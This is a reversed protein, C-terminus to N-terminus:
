ARVSGGDRRRWGPAPWPRYRRNCRSTRCGSVADYDRLHDRVPLIRSGVNKSSRSRRPFGPRNMSKVTRSDITAVSLARPRKVLERDAFSRWEYAYYEVPLLENPDKLWEDLMDQYEENAFIRLFVGPCANTPVTTNVAGCLVQLDDDDRLYLEILIEPFSPKEGAKCAAVFQSVLETNFWYPNLEEMVGRGSIRGTLALSIAEMLTSKGADNDGVLINMKSNPCFTFKKYIRYGRIHVKTIM